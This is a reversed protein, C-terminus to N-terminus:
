TKLTMLDLTIKCSKFPISNLVLFHPIVKLIYHNMVMTESFTQKCFTRQKDSICLGLINIEQTFQRQWLHALVMILVSM